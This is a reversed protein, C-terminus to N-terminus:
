SRSSQPGNSAFSAAIASRRDALGSSTARPRCGHAVVLVVVLPGRRAQVAHGRPRIVDVLFRDVDRRAVAEDRDLELVARLVHQVALAAVALHPEGGAGAGPVVVPLVAA